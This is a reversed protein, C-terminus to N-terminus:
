VNKILSAQLRKVRAESNVGPLWNQFAFFGRCNLGMIFCGIYVSLSSYVNKGSPGPMSAWGYRQFRFISLVDPAPRRRTQITSKYMLKGAKSM